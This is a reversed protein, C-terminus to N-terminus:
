LPPVYLAHTMRVFANGLEDLRKVIDPNSVRDEEFDQGTAYVFRPIIVARFGLMLSNAIGMVSMYSTKGGAACVFGVVKDSWSSGTIALLNKAPAGVDYNYISTAMIIGAASKIERNLAIANPDSYCQDADCLPLPYQRLDLLSTDQGQNQLSTSLTQALIRSRSNPSLSTSILLLRM